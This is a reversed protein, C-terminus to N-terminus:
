KPKWSTGDRKLEKVLRQLLGEQPDIGKDALGKITKTLERADTISIYDKSKKDLEGIKMFPRGEGFHYSAHFSIKGDKTVIARLGTVMDDSITTRELPLRGSKLDKALGELAENTFSSQASERLAKRKPM